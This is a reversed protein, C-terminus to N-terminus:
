GTAVPLAVFDIELGVEEGVNAIFPVDPIVLGFDARQVTTSATGELREGSVPVVTVQFTVENTVDRITLDGIIEFTINDGLGASDPLGSIKTPNFTIFEFRGTDLIQNGITRNRRNDDTALTRANVLIAGVQSSGPDAPDILIEGAVQDTVGIVTQPEGRLVEDIIFRVESEAQVIEFLTPESRDAEPEGEEEADSEADVENAAGVSNASPSDPATTNLPIAAIPGSAEETPRLFAYSFAAVAVIGILIVVVAVITISKRSM